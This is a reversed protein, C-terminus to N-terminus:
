KNNGVVREVFVKKTPRDDYLTSRFIQSIKLTISEGQQIQEEPLRNVLTLCWGFISVGQDIQARLKVEWQRQQIVGLALDLAMLVGAYEEPSRGV